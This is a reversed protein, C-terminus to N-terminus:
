AEMWDTDGLRRLTQQGASLQSARGAEDPALAMLDLVITGWIPNLGSEFFDAGRGPAAQKVEEGVSKLSATAWKLHAYCRTSSRLKVAQAPKTLAM